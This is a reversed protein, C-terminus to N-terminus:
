DNEKRNFLRHIEKSMKISHIYIMIDQRLKDHKLFYHTNLENFVIYKEKYNFKEYMHIIDNNRDLENNLGDINGLKYNILAQKKALKILKRGLMWRKIFHKINIGFLKIKIRKDM